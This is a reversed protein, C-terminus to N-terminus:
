LHHGSYDQRRHEWCLLEWSSTGRWLSINDFSRVEIGLHWCGLFRLQQICFNSNTLNRRGTTFNHVELKGKNCQPIGQMSTNLYLNVNSSPTLISPMDKIPSPSSECSPGDSSLHLISSIPCCSPVSIDEMLVFCLLTLIFLFKFIIFQQSSPM